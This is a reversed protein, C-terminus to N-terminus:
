ATAESMQRMPENGKPEVQRWVADSIDRGDLLSFVLGRADPPVNAQVWFAQEKRSGLALARLRDTWLTAAGRILDFALRRAEATSRAWGHFEDPLGAAFDDFTGARLQRWVEKVSLSSVIRHLEVYDLQKIKVARHRDFWVVIGEANPRPEIALAERLTGAPMRAVKSFPFLSLGAPTYYCGDRWDLLGLYVLEDRAGYDIVVRNEPYVIEWLRTTERHPRPVEEGQRWLWDTAHIAQESEFSGRTAIAQRGDPREYQIGLSGDVKDFAGLVPADLDYGTDAEPYNFFKAFPRAVLDGTGTNYIVGRAQRTAATWRGEWQCRDTYNVIALEPFEPHFRRNIYGADIERELDATDFIDSLLMPSGESIPM